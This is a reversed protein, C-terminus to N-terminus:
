SHKRSGKDQVRVDKDKQKKNNFEDPKIFGEEMEKKIQKLVEKFDQVEDIEDIWPM